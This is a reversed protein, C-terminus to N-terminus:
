YFLFHPDNRGYLEMRDWYKKGYSSFLETRSEIDGIAIVNVYWKGIVEHKEQSIREDFYCNTYYETKFIFKEGYQDCADNILRCSSNHPDVGDIYWREFKGTTKNEWVGKVIFESKNLHVDELCIGTYVGIVEGDLIKRRTFVGLGAVNSDSVIINPEIEHFPQITPDVEM